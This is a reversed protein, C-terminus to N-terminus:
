VGDGQRKSIGQLKSNNPTQIEFGILQVGTLVDFQSVHLDPKSMIIVTGEDLVVRFWAISQLLKRGRSDAMLTGYTTLVM